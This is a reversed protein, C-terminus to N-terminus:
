TSYYRYSVNYYWDYHSVAGSSEITKVWLPNNNVFNGQQDTWEKGMGGIYLKGDKVSCWEGKFGKDKKGDGDMLLAVPYAIDEEIIVVLVDDALTNESIIATNGMGTRDDFSYLQDQFNCLDSLEM